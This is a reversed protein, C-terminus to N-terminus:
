MQTEDTILPNFHEQLNLHANSRRLKPKTQAEKLTSTKGRKKSTNDLNKGLEESVTTEDEFTILCKEIPLPEFLLQVVKMQLSALKGTAGHSGFYLGTVHVLAMYRGRKLEDSDIPNKFLDFGQFYESM